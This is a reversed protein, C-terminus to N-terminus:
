RRSPMIKGLQSGSVLYSVSQSIGGKILHIFYSLLIHINYAYIPSLSIFLRRMFSIQNVM